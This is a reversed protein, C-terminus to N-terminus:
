VGFISKLMSFGNVSYNQYSYIHKVELWKKFKKSKQSLIKNGEIILVETLPSISFATRYIAIQKVSSKQLLESALGLFAFLAM